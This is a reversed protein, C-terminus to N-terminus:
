ISNHTIFNLLIVSISLAHIHRHKNNKVDSVLSMQRVKYSPVVESIPRFTHNDHEQSDKCVACVHQKDELCFLEFREGHLSCSLDEVPISDMQVTQMLRLLGFM